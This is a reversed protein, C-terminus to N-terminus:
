QSKLTSSKLYLGQGQQMYESDPVIVIPTPPDIDLAPQQTNPDLWNNSENLDITYKHGQTDVFHVVRKPTFVDKKRRKYRTSM